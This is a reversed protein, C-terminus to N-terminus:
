CARLWLASKVKRVAILGLFANKIAPVARPAPNTGFIACRTRLAIGPFFRLLMIVRILRLLRLSQASDLSLMAAYGVDTGSMAQRCALLMDWTLVPCRGAFAVCCVGWQVLTSMASRASGKVSSVGIVGAWMTVLVLFDLWNWLSKFYGTTSCWGGMLTM